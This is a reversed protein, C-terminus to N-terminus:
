PAECDVKAMSHAMSSRAFSSPKLGKSILRMLLTLSVSRM